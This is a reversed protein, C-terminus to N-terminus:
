SAIYAYLLIGTLLSNSCYSLVEYTHDSSSLVTLLAYLVGVTDKTCSATCEGLGRSAVDTAILIPCKGTRFESFVIIVYIVVCSVQRSWVHMAAYPCMACVCMGM